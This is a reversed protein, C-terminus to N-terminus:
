PILKETRMFDVWYLISDLTQYELRFGLRNVKERRGLLKFPVRFLIDLFEWNALNSLEAEALEERSSIEKWVDSMGAMGECFRFENSFMDDAPLAAVGLKEGLAPWVQKWTFSSGGNISNFAQGNVSAAIAESTAAWIHQEAVLRADSGEMSVEEWCERTGGFVFPLSLHKCITGYVCISGMFNFWSRRSCGMLLGPRHVSWAVQMGHLRERVLDELVYYFNPSTAVRPSEEDYYCADKSSSDGFPGQLSIYHKMGTQISIHKLSTTVPSLLADLANSMMAKNRACCEEGDLPSDNAWTIWFMHTVADKLASLKQQTELPNLLDCSIFHYNSRSAYAVLHDDSYRAVGYVQWNSKSALLKRALERGVLGTVGFVIAVSTQHQFIGQSSPIISNDGDARSCAGHNM